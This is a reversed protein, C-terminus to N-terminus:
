VKIDIEDHDLFEFENKLIEKMEKLADELKKNKWNLQRCTSSKNLRDKKTYCDKDNELLCDVLESYGKKRLKQIIESM